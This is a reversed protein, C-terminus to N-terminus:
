ENAQDGNGVTTLRVRSGLHVDLRIPILLDKKTRTTTSTRIILYLESNSMRRAEDPLLMFLNLNRFSNEKDDM